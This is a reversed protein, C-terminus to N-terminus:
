TLPSAQGSARDLRYVQLDPLTLLFSQQFQYPQRQYVNICYCSQGDLLVTGDQPIFLYDATQGSLGLQEPPMKRLCDVAEELTVTEPQPLESAPTLSPTVSCSTEDWQITLLLVEEPDETEHAALVEGSAASFDTESGSEPDPEITCDYDAELAQTYSQATEGGSSLQSYVYTTNGSEEDQNQQFQVDSDLTVLSNLSPLSEEDVTYNEPLDAAKDRGGCGALLLLATLLPLLINAVPKM